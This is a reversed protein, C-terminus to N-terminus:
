RTGPGARFRELERAPLLLEDDAPKFHWWNLRDLIEMERQVGGLDKGAGPRGYAVFFVRLREKFHDPLDRRWVIPDGVILPSKWIVRLAAYIGPHRREYRELDPTNGTAVDVRKRAVAIMNAEHTAPVVRVFHKQPDVHHKAWAHFRPVVVGSTSNPDTNTGLSLMGPRAVIDEISTLPSDRHVILIAFYGDGTTKFTTHAFVEGQARDVAQIASAPGLHAVNVSGVRMAEVIQGHDDGYVVNVPVGAAREMDAVFPPWTPRRSESTITGFSLDKM